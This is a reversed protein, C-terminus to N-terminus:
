VMFPLCPYGAELFQSNMIWKTEGKHQSCLTTTWYVHHIIDGKKGKRKKTSCELGCFGTTRQIKVKRM